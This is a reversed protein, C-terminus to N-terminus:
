RRQGLEMLLLKMFLFHLKIINMSRHEDGRLFALVFIRELFAESLFCMVYM